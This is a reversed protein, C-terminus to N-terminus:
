YIRDSQFPRAVRKRKKEKKEKETRKEHEMGLDCNKREREGNKGATQITQYQQQANERVRVIKM